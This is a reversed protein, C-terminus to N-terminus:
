GDHRRRLNAQNDIWVVRGLSFLGGGQKKLRILTQDALGQATTIILHGNIVVGTKFM